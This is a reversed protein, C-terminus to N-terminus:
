VNAFETSHTTLSNIIATSSKRWCPSCVALLWAKVQLLRQLRRRWEGDVRLGDELFVSWAWGEVWHEAVCTEELVVVTSRRVSWLFKSSVPRSFDADKGRQPQVSSIAKVLLVLWYWFSTNNAIINEVHASIRTYSTSKSQSTPTPYMLFICMSKFFLSLKQNIQFM